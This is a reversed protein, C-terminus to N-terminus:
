VRPGDPAEEGAVAGLDRLAAAYAAREAAYARERATQDLATLDAATGHAGLIQIVRTEFARWAGELEALQAEVPMNQRRAEAVLEAYAWSQAWVGLAHAAAALYGGHHLELWRVLEMRKQWDM